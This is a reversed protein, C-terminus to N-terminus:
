GFSGKGDAVYSYIVMYEIGNKKFYGIPIDGTEFYASRSEFPIGCFVKDPEIQHYVVDNRRNAIAILASLNKSSGKQNHKPHQPHQDAWVWEGCVM